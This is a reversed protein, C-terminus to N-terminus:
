AENSPRAGVRGVRTCAGLGSDIFSGLKPRPNLQRKIVRPVASLRSIWVLFTYLPFVVFALAVSSRHRASPPFQMPPFFAPYSLYQMTLIIYSSLLFVGAVAPVRLMAFPLALKVLVLVADYIRYFTMLRIWWGPGKGAPRFLVRLLLPLHLFMFSVDWCHARQRWWEGPTRPVATRVISEAVFDIRYGFYHHLYSCQIDEGAFEGDHERMVELFVDTRYVAAAGAAWTVNRGFHLQVRKNLNNGIYEFIQFREVITQARSPVIPLATVAAGLDLVEVPRGAPWRIDDDTVLAHSFGDRRAQAVGLIVAKSKSGEDFDVDILRIDARNVALDEIISVTQDTCNNAVCYIVLGEPISHVTEEISSASNHCPIVVAVDARGLPITPLRRDRYGFNAAVEFLARLLDSTFAVAFIWLIVAPELWDFMSM